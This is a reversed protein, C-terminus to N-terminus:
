ATRSKEKQKWNRAEKLKIQLAQWYFPELNYYRKGFKLRTAELYSTWADIERQSPM